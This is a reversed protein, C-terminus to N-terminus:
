RRSREMTILAGTSQVDASCTPISAWRKTWSIQLSCILQHRAARTNDVGERDAMQASPRGVPALGDGVSRARVWRGGAVTMGVCATEASAAGPLGGDGDRYRGLLLLRSVVAHDSCAGRFLAPMPSCTTSSTCATWRGSAVADADTLAIPSHPVDSAASRRGRPPTAEAAQAPAEAPKNRGNIRPPSSRDAWCAPPRLRGGGDAYADVGGRGAGRTMAM